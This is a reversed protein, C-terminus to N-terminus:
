QRTLQAARTLGSQAQEEDFDHRVGLLNILGLLFGAIVLWKLRRGHQGGIGRLYLYVAFVLWTPLAMWIKTDEGGLYEGPAGFLWIVGMVLGLTFLSFGGAAFLFAAEGSTDLPPLYRNLRGKKLAQHQVLYVVAACCSLAFGVHGLLTLVVHVGLFPYEVLISEAEAFRLPLLLPYLLGFFALPASLLGLHRVRAYREALLSAVILAIILWSVIVLMSTFPSLGSLALHLIMGILHVVLGLGLSNRGLAEWNNKRLLFQGQFLLAAALYLALAIGLTIMCATTM